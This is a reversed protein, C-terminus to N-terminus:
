KFSLANFHSAPSCTCAGNAPPVPTYCATGDEINKYFVEGRNPEDLKGEFLLRGTCTKGERQENFRWVGRMTKLPMADQVQNTLLSYVVRMSVFFCALMTSARLVASDVPCGM